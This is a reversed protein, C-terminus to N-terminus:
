WAMDPDPPTPKHVKRSHSKELQREYILLAIKKAVDVECAIAKRLKKESIDLRYLMSFLQETAYQMMYEVRHCLAQLIKEESILEEEKLGFQRSLTDFDNSASM